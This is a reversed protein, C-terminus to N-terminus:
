EKGEENKLLSKEEEPKNEEKVPDKAAPKADVNDDPDGAITREGDLDTPFALDWVAVFFAYSILIFANVLVLMVALGSGFNM